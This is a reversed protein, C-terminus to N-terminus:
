LNSQENDVKPEVTLKINSTRLQVRESEIRIIDNRKSLKLKLLISGVKKKDLAKAQASITTDPISRSDKNNRKKKKKTGLPLRPFRDSAKYRVRNM